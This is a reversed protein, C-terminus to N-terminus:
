QKLLFHKIHEAAKEVEKIAKDIDSDSTLTGDKIANHLSTVKAKTRNAIDLSKDLKEKVNKDNASEKLSQILENLETEVIVIREEVKVIKDNTQQKIDKRLENGSKPSTLVGAIYGLGTMLTSFFIVKKIRKSPM